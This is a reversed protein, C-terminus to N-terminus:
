IKSSFAHSDKLARKTKIPKVKIFYAIASKEKYDNIILKSNTNSLLEKIRTILASRDDYYKKWLEYSNCYPRDVYIDILSGDIIGNLFEENSILFEKPVPNADRDCTTVDYILYGLQNTNTTTVRFCKHESIYNENTISAYHAKHTPSYVYNWTIQKSWM